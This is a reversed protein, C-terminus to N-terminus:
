MLSFKIMINGCKNPHFEYSFYYKLYNYKLFQNFIKTITTKLKQFYFYIGQIKYPKMTVGFIFINFKMFFNIFNILFEFNLFIDLKVKSM